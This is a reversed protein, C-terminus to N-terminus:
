RSYRNPIPSLQTPKHAAQHAAGHAAHYPLDLHAEEGNKGKEKEKKNETKM